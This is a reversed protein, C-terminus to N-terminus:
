GFGFIDAEKLFIEGASCSACDACSFRLCEEAAESDLSRARIDASGCYADERM